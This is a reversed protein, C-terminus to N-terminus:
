PMARPWLGGYLSRRGTLSLFLPISAVSARCDQSIQLRYFQQLRNQCSWRFRRVNAFNGLHAIYKNEGQIHRSHSTRLNKMNMPIIQCSLNRPFFTRNAQLLKAYKKHEICQYRLIHFIQVVTTRLRCPLHILTELSNQTSRVNGPFDAERIWFMLRWWFALIM